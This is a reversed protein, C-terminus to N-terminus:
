LSTEALRVLPAEEERYLAQMTILGVPCRRACLGCRICASEDKILAAGPEDRGTRRLSILEICQEPCVDACGGCEICQSANMSSADFITNVWCHLCRRAEVRADKEAFPREVEAKRDRAAIPIVPLDHRAIKDYDGRAFPHDYGFTEFV